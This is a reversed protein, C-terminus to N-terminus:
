GVDDDWTVTFHAHAQNLEIPSVLAVHFRHVQNTLCAEWDGTLCRFVPTAQRAEYCPAKTVHRGTAGLAGPGQERVEVARADM